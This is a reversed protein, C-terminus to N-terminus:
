EVAHGRELLKRSAEADGETLTSVIDLRPYVARIQNRLGGRYSALNM